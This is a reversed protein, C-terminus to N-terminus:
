IARHLLHGRCNALISFRRSASSVDTVQRTPCQGQPGTSACGINNGPQISLHWKKSLCLPLSDLCLALPRRRHPFISCFFNLISKERFCDFVSLTCTNYGSDFGMIGGLGTYESFNGSEGENPNWPAVSKSTHKKDIEEQQESLRQRVGEDGPVGRLLHTM